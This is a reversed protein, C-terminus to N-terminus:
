HRYPLAAIITYKKIVSIGMGLCSEVCVLYVELTDNRKMTLVM